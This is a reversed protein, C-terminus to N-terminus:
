PRVGKLQHGMGLVSVVLCQESQIEQVDGWTALDWTLGCNRCEFLPM